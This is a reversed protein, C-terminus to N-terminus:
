RADRRSPRPGDRTSMVLADDDVAAAGRPPYRGSLLAIRSPSCSPSAYHRSLVVGAEALADLTPTHALANGSYGTSNYGLADAVILVLHPRAPLVPLGPEAM